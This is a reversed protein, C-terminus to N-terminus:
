RELGDINWGPSGGREVVVLVSRVRGGLVPTLKSWSFPVKYMSKAEDWKGGRAPSRGRNLRRSWRAGRPAFAIWHTKEDAKTGGCRWRVGEGECKKRFSGVVMACVTKGILM